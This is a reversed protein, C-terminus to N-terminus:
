LIEKIVINYKNLLNPLSTLSFTANKINNKDPDIMFDYCTSLDVGSLNTNEFEAFAFNVEHLFSGTFNTELLQTSTFNCQKFSCHNFKKGAFSSYSFDSHEAHIAFAFDKVKSFDIGILKCQLFKCNNLISQNFNCNSLNCGEFTCDLFKVSQASSFTCSQFTCGEYEEALSTTTFDIEKVLQNYM